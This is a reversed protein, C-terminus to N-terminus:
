KLGARMTDWLNPCTPGKIENTEKNRGQSLVTQTSHQKWTYTPKRNNKNNSFVLRLSHHDSLTCPIIEIKYRSLDTKHSLIYDTKSFTGHHASFTYEKTKPYFTRYIYILDMQNMVEILKVTERNLKQKWSRDMSLLPTNFVGVIIM